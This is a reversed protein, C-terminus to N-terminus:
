RSSLAPVVEAIRLCDGFRHLAWRHLEDRCLAGLLEVQLREVPHPLMQDNLAEPGDHLIRPKRSSRPTATRCAGSAWGTGGSWCARLTVGTWCRRNANDRTLIAKRTSSVVLDQGTENARAATGVSRLARQRP